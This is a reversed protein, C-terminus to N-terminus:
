ELGVLSAGNDTQDLDLSEGLMVIYNASLRMLNVLGPAARKFHCDLCVFFDRLCETILQGSSPLQNLIVQQITPFQTHM